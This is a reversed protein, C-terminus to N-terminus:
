RKRLLATLTINKNIKPLFPVDAVLFLDCFTDPVGVDHVIECATIVLCLVDLGNKKRKLAVAVIASGQVRREGNLPVEGKVIYVGVASPTDGFDGRANANGPQDVNRVEVSRWGRCGLEITGLCGTLVCDALCEGSGRDDSRTRHESM